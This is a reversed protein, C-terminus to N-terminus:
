VRPFWADWCPQYDPYLHTTEKDFGRYHRMYGALYAFSSAHLGAFFPAGVCVLWDILAQEELCLAEFEEKIAPSAKLIDKKRTIALHPFEKSIINVANNYKEDQIGSAIYVASLNPTISIMDITQQLQSKTFTELGVDRIASLQMLDGEIRLHIAKWRPYFSMLGIIHYAFKLMKKAFPFSKAILAGTDRSEAPLMHRQPFRRCTIINNQIENMNEIDEQSQRVSINRNGLLTTLDNIDIYSDISIKSFYPYADFDISTRTQVDSLIIGVSQNQTSYFLAEGITRFIAM